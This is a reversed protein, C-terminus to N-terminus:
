FQTRLRVGFLAVVDEDPYDSPRFLLQVDPSLQWSDTLQIRYYSELTVQNRRHYAQDQQGVQSWAVGLGFQDNARGFPSAISIGGSLEQPIAVVNDNAIGYRLFLTLNECVEQNFNIAFGSGNSRTEDSGFPANTNYFILRYQGKGLGEITNIYGIEGALWYRGDGITEFGRDPRGLADIIISNIYIQETMAWQFAIGPAYTGEGPQLTSNGDFPAALFMTSEDNAVPSLDIYQNPHLKGVSIAVDGDFLNQQYYLLNLTAADNDLLSNVGVLSGTNTTLNTDRGDGIVVGSRMLFGIVGSTGSGEDEYVKMNMGFDLRGNALTSTGSRTKDAAQFFLTYYLNTAIGAENALFAQVDRIPNMLPVLPDPFLPDLDDMGLPRGVNSIRTYGSPDERDRILPPVSRVPFPAGSIIDAASQIADRATAKMEINEPVGSDDPKSEDSEDQSQAIVPHAVCLLISCLLFKLGHQHGYM